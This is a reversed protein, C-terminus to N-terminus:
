NRYTNRKLATSSMLKEDNHLELEPELAQRGHVEVSLEFVFRVVSFRLESDIRSSLDFLQLDSNSVYFCFTSRYGFFQIVGGSSASRYGFFQIVTPIVAALVSFFRKSRFGLDSCFCEIRGASFPPLNNIEM